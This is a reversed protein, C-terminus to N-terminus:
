DAMEATAMGDPTASVRTMPAVALRNRLALAGIRHPSLAPHAYQM